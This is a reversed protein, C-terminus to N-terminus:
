AARCSHQRRDDDGQRPFRGLKAGLGLNDYNHEDRGPREATGQRSTSFENKCSIKPFTAGRLVCLSPLSLVDAVVSHDCPEWVKHGFLVALTLRVVATCSRRM